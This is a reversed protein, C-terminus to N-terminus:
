PLPKIPGYIHSLGGGAASGLMGGGSNNHCTFCNSSGQVYTEMTSNALFNTGVQTGTSPPAGGITWTAGLMFYNKRMDGSLLQSLVSHNISVIQTNSSVSGGATGPLGWPNSRLTNSPTPPKPPPPGPPPPVGVIDAGSLQAKSQNFTSGTPCGTVCFLWSGASDQPITKPGSTSTYTYAASPTNGFHEFTAWIMEPHGAVTAVFHVGVLALTMPKTGSPVWKNPNSTDYKPVTASVTIYNSSPSVTAADVWSMKVEVALANPDPFTVGKSSAFATIKALDAASSPFQTAAPTIGGTKNGTLFYAYVDNVVITYYVLSDPGGTKSLLADGTAQGEEPNVPTVVGGLPNILIAKGNFVFRQAVQAAVAQAGAPKEMAKQAAQPAAKPAEVPKLLEPRLIPKPSAIVKGATDKFAVKGQTIAASEVEVEKGASNMILQKGNPALKAPQVEFLHNNKDLIVPLGHPGPTPVRVGFFPFRGSVHKSLTRQDSANPPSVDYFTPSDFIHAGGGYTAPAPSLLWLFMQESWQYFACLSSAVFTLSNAPNVQGNVSPTGSTFWGNFTAAPVPCGGSANTPISQARVTPPQVVLLMMSLTAGVILLVLVAQYVRRPNKYQPLLHGIADAQSALCKLRGHYITASM